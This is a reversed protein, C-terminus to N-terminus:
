IAYFETVAMYDANKVLRIYRARTNVPYIQMPQTFEGTNGLNEWNVGDLSGQIDLNQAYQAGWNGGLGPCSLDWFDPCGIPEFDCGVVVGKINYIGNLDVQVWEFGSNKTGTARREDYVGNTMNRADAPHNCIKEIVPNGSSDYLQNDNEDYIYYDECYVSSQTYNLVSSIPQPKELKRIVEEPLNIEEGDKVLEIKNNDVEIYVTRQTSIVKGNKIFTSSDLGGETNYSSMPFDPSFNFEYQM